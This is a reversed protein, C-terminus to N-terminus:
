VQKITRASEKNSIRGVLMAGIEMQVVKGIHKSGIVTYERHNQVYVKRNELAVPRVSHLLGPIIKIREITGNTCYIYRHYHYPMLRFILATGNQFDESVKQSDLLEALSYDCHKVNFIRNEDIEKVTLLGDCPCILDSEQLGRYEEKKQRKFFDNFSYYGWKPIVYTEMDIGNKRIFRRIMWVSLFSSLYVAAVKSIWPSAVIGLLMRGPVTKYIFELFRSEKM